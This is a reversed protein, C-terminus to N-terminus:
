SAPNGWHCVCVCKQVGGRTCGLITLTYLVGVLMSLPRGMSGQKLYAGLDKLPHLGDGGSSLFAARGIILLGEVRCTIKSNDQVAARDQLLSQHHHHLVIQLQINPCIYIIKANDVQPNYFFTQQLFLTTTITPFTCFPNYLLSNYFLSTTYLPNCWVQFFCVGHVGCLENFFHLILGNNQQM